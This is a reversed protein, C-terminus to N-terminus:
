HKCIERTSISNPSCRPFARSHNCSLLENNSVLRIPQYHTVGMKACAGICTLCTRSRLKRSESIPSFSTELKILYRNTIAGITFLYHALATTLLRETTPRAHEANFICVYQLKYDRCHLIQEVARTADNNRERRRESMRGREKERKDYFQYSFLMAGRAFSGECIRSLLRIQNWLLM